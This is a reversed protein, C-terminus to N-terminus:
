GVIEVEAPALVIAGDRAAAIPPIRADTVRWGHHKLVGRYPPSGAVSGSLRVTAPDFDAPVTVPAEEAEPRIPELQVYEALVKRCGRHIDRV